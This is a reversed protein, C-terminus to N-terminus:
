GVPFVAFDMKLVYGSEWSKWWTWRGGATSADGTHFGVAERSGGRVNAEWAQDWCLLRLSGKLPSTMGRGEEARLHRTVGEECLACTLARRADELGVHDPWVEIEDGNSQQLRVLGKGGELFWLRVEAQPTGVAPEGTWSGQPYNRMGKLGKRLTLKGPLSVRVQRILDAM